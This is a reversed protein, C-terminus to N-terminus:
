MRALANAIKLPKRSEALPREVVDVAFAFGTSVKEFFALLEDRAGDLL